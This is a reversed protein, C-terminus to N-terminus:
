FGVCYLSKLTVPIRKISQGLLHGVMGLKQLMLTSSLVSTSLYVAINCM